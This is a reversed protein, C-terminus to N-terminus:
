NLYISCHNQSLRFLRKGKAEDLQFRKKFILIHMGRCISICWPWSHSLGFLPTKWINLQIYIIFRKSIVLINLFNGVIVQRNKDAYLLKSIGFCIGASTAALWEKAENCNMMIDLLTGGFVIYIYINMKISWQGGTAVYANWNLWDCPEPSKNEYM